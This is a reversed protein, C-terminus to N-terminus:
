PVNNVFNQDQIHHLYVQNVPSVTSVDQYGTIVICVKTVIPNTKGFVYM